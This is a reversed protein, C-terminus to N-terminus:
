KLFEVGIYINRNQWDDDNSGSAGYRIVIKNTNIFNNIDINSFIFERTEFNTKLDNSGYEYKIDPCVKYDDSLGTDNYLCIYQYGKDIEKMDMKVSINVKTYGELMYELLSESLVNNLNLIDYKNHSYRGSDNITYTSSRIHRYDTKAELPVYTSVYSQYLNNNYNNAYINFWNKLKTKYTNNDYQTPLLEWLPVLGDSSTRILATSNEISDVWNSYGINLNEISTASFMNGGWTNARFSQKYYSSSTDLITSLNFNANTGVEILGTIGANLKNTIEAKYNVGVNHSNSVAGFYIEAKAGYIGKAIVHTGYNDFFTSAISSSNSNFLNTLANIYDAHLNTKYASLNTSYNPLTYAYKDFNAILAYYYQYM